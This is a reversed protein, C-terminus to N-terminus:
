PFYLVGTLKGKKSPDKNLEVVFTYSGKAKSGPLITADIFAKNGSQRVATGLLGPFPNNLHPASDFDKGPVGGEVFIPKGTKATLYSEMAEHKVIDSASFGGEKEHKAVMEVEERDVANKGPGQSEGINVNDDRTNATLVGHNKTDIIAKFLEKEPGNKMGKLMKNLAKKDKENDLVKGNKDVIAVKNKDTLTTKFSLGKSFQEFAWQREDGNIEFDLGTPDILLLPNNLVYSYRNWSAPLFPRGSSLM